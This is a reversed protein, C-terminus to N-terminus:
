PRIIPDNKRRLRIELYRAPFYGVMTFATSLFTALDCGDGVLAAIPALYYYQYMSVGVGVAGCAFGFVAAYMLPFHDKTAYYKWQYDDKKHRRFFLTEELLIVAYIMCYYGIMPLFNSIIESWGSQGVAALIYILCTGGIAFIYRPFKALFGFYTQFCLGFSYSGLGSNTILTIFMLVALFIGGGHWKKMSEVLLGACGLNNYLDVISPDSLGASALGVGLIGVFCTPIFIIALTFLFVFWVNSDEPLDVFYDSALPLWSSTVGVSSSFFSIWAANYNIGVVTSPSNLDFTNGACVYCLLYAVLAPVMFFLNFLELIRIGAISLFMVVLFNILMGIQISIKGYSMASLMQGALNANVIGWGIGNLNSILGIFMSFYWGFQFRCGMVQRLGSRPGLTAGFAAVVSGVFVGVVGASVSSSFSLGFMLPGLAFGTISSVACTGGSWVGALKLYDWANGKSRKLPSQRQVGRTEGLRDVFYSARWFYKLYKNNLRDETYILDLPEIIEEEDSDLSTNSQVDVNGKKEADESHRPSFSDASNYETAM